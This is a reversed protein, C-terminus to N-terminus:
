FSGHLMSVLPEIVGAAAFRGRVATKSNSSSSRRVLRRVDRAADIKALIDGKVLRRAVYDVMMNPSWLPSLSEKSEVGESDDAVLMAAREEDDEE